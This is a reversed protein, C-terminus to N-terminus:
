HEVPNLASINQHFPVLDAFIQCADDTVTDVYKRIPNVFHNSVKTTVDCLYSSRMAALLLYLYLINSNGLFSFFCGYDISQFGLTM